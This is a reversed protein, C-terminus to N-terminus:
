IIVSVAQKSLPPAVSIIKMQKCMRYVELSKLAGKYTEDPHQFHGYFILKKRRFWIARAVVTMLEVIERPFLQLGKAFLERFSSVVWSCKHFYSLHFGWVDQTALCTWITHILTEEAAECCPCTAVEV